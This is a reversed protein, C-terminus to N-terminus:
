QAFVSWARRGIEFAEQPSVLALGRRGAIWREGTEGSAFYHVFSCFSQIVDRDFARDPMLISVVTGAPYVDEVGWPTVTMSIPDENVPDKSEVRAPRGLVPVILMPDLACWAHIPAGGDACFRHRMEPLALGWFGVLGGRDDRFVGPWAELKASVSAEEVGAHAAIAEPTVPQGATLLDWAARAVARGGADVDFTAAAIADALRDITAGNM